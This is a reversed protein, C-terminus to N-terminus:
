DSTPNDCGFSWSREPFLYSLLSLTTKSGDADVTPECAALWRPEDLDRPLALRALRAPGDTRWARDREFLCYGEWALVTIDTLDPLAPMGLRIFRDVDPADPVDQMWRLLAHGAEGLSEAMRARSDRDVLRRLERRRFLLSRIRLMQLADLVPLAALAEGPYEGLVDFADFPPLAVQLADFLASACRGLGFPHDPLAGDARLAAIDPPLWSADVWGFADRRNAQFQIMVAAYRGAPSEPIETEYM